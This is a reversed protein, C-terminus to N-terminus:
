DKNSQVTQRIKKCSFGAFQGLNCVGDTLCKQNLASETKILGSLYNGPIAAKSVVHEHELTYHVGWFCEKSVYTTHGIVLNYREMCGGQGLWAVVGAKSFLARIDTEFIFSAKLGVATKLVSKWWCTVRKM